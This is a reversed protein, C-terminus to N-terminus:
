DAEEAMLQFATFPAFVIRQETAANVRIQADAPSSQLLIKSHHFRGITDEYVVCGVLWAGKRIDRLTAPLTKPVSVDINMQAGPMITAGGDKKSQAKLDDCATQADPKRDGDEIPDLWIKHNFRLAPSGGFNKFTYSISTLLSVHGSAFQIDAPERVKIDGALGIWPRYADAAATVQRDAIKLLEGTQQISSNMAELQKSTVSVYYATAGVLCTTLIVTFLNLWVSLKQHVKREKLQEHNNRIHKPIRIFFNFTRLLLNLMRRWFNLVDKENSTTPRHEQNKSLDDSSDVDDYDSRNNRTSMFATSNYSAAARLSLCIMKGQHNIHLGM